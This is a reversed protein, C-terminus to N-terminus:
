KIGADVKLIELCKECNALIINTWRLNEESIDTLILEVAMSISGFASRLDHIQKRDLTPLLTDTTM